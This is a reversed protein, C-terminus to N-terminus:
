EELESKITIRQNPIIRRDKIVIDGEVLGELVQVQNGIVQGSIINRQQATNNNFVLVYESTNTKFITDIPIYIINEEDTNEVKLQLQVKLSNGPVLLKELKSEPDLLIEFFGNEVPITSISDINASYFEGNIEVVADQRADIRTVLDATVLARLELSVKGSIIAIEQGPSIAEGENVLVKEVRGSIPSRLTSLDKQLTTLELNLEATEVDIVAIEQQLRLQELMLDRNIEAIATRPYNSSTQYELLELQDHLNLLTTDYQTSASKLNNLAAQNQLRAQEEQFDYDQPNGSEESEDELDDYYDEIEDEFEEYEEILEEVNNKLEETAKIQEELGDVKNRNIELLALYDDHTEDALDKQDNYQNKLSNKNEQAKELQKEALEIQIDISDEGSYNGQTEAIKDGNKVTDGEEVDLSTIVGPSLAKITISTKNEAKALTSTYSDINGAEITEVEFIREESSIPTPIIPPVTGSLHSFILIGTTTFLLLSLIIIRFYKKIFNRSKNIM